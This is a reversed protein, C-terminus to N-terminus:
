LQKTVRLAEGCAYQAEFDMLGDMVKKSRIIEVKSLALNRSASPRQIGALYGNQFIGIAGIALLVWNYDRLTAVNVLLAPWLISQAVVVVRTIWFGVPIGRLVRTKRLLTGERPLDPSGELPSRPQAFFDEDIFKEWPRM